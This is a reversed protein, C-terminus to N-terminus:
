RACTPAPAACRRRSRCRRRTRWGPWSPLSSRGSRARPLGVRLRPRRRALLGPLREPLGLLPHLAPVPPRRRRGARRHARQRAAGPPVGAARRGRARREVALHLPEDARRDLLAAAAPPLGGPRALAAAGERHGHRDGARRAAHHVHARQGRVRGRLRHRDRRRRLEGRERGHQAELFKRRLHERAVATLEAPEDSLDEAGLERRFLDRIEARNRHIAPVLIHSPSDDDLQVILEALDTEVAGIGEAALADNLKTEDTTISKVKVVEDVGHESPWRRWRRTPRPATAPGTCTAAPPRCRPRSSSSCSRCGRWPRTRSRRRRGRAAGGLRRGGGGGRGAQRPHHPHRPRPQAAAPHRGPGRARRRPLRRDRSRIM